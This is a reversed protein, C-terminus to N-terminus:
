LEWLPLGAKRLYFMAAWYMFVVATSKKGAITTMEESSYKDTSGLQHYKDRERWCKAM